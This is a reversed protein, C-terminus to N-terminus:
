IRYWGLLQLLLTFLRVTLTFSYSGATTTTTIFEAVMRGHMNIATITGSVESDEELGTITFMRLTSNIIPGGQTPPVGSCGRVRASYQVTYSDM